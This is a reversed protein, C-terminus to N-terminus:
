PMEKAEYKQEEQSITYGLEEYLKCRLRSHKAMLPHFEDRFDYIVAETKGAFARLVRGTRQESKARNRGGSVLVLVNAIPVDLGEDALSTAVLCRKLGVRFEALATTRERKGMKSSCAVGDLESAVRKCHEIQNVLVLVSDGNALHKKAIRVATATRQDNNVIGHKICALWSIQAYLEGESRRWYRLRWRMTSAIEQNITAKIDHNSEGEASLMVVRASTIRKKVSDRDIYYVSPFLQKFEALTAEDEPPTATLGWVAQKATKVQHNWGPASAAHHCEDVVLVDTWSWDMAAAACAVTIKSLRNINQFQDMAARAQQCQETTNALWGIKVRESRPRSTLVADLAAAAIITKGSGAASVVAGRKTRALFKVAAQQYNELEM